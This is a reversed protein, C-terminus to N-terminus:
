ASVKIWLAVALVTYFAALVDDLMVGFGGKVGRDIQRIPPPKLVDFARFVFFAALQSV